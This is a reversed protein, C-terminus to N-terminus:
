SSAGGLDDLKMQLLSESAPGLKLAEQYANRAADLENKTVHIDGRLEAYVAALTGPTGASLLSLAEDPQGSDLMLRALRVRAINRLEETEAQQMVWRLQEAAADSNGQAYQLKALALAGVAAYPTDAYDTRLKQGASVAQDVQTQQTAAVLAAYHTSAELAHTERYETWSKWGVVGAVGIALGVIISKGNEKWWNKIAEIQQEESNYIEM